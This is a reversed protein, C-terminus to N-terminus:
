YEGFKQLEMSLNGYDWVLSIELSRGSDIRGKGKDVVM